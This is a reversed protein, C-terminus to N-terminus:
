MTVNEVHIPVSWDSVLIVDYRISNASLKPNRGLFINSARQIRKLQKDTIAMYCKEENKRSKVEIFAILDGKKVILDIEGYTTKYRKELIRFGKFTLFLTALMEGLYGKYKTHM